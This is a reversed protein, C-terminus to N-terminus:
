TSHRAHFELAQRREDDSAQPHSAAHQLAQLLQARVGDRAKGNLIRNTMWLTYTVPRRGLSLLLAEVYSPFSREIYHVLEGPAGLDAGPHREFFAFAAEAEAHGPFAPANEVLAELALFHAGDPSPSIADLKTRFESANM